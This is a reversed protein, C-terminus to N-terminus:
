ALANKVAHSKAYDSLMQRAQLKSYYFGVGPHIREPLSDEACRADEPTLMVETLLFRNVRVYGRALRDKHM